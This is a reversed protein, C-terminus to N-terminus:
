LRELERQARQLQKLTKEWEELLFPAPKGSAAARASLNAGVEAIAVAETLALRLKQAHTM